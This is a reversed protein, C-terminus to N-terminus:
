HYDAIEVDEAGADTWRFCGRYQDNIRVSWQGARDGRLRELRNGPPIRMDRVDRSQNLMALKRRAVARVDDPCVKRARASRVGNYVDETGQNAFSVIVFCIYRTASCADFGPQGTAAGPPKGLLGGRRGHRHSRRFPTYSRTRPTPCGSVNYIRRLTARQVPWAPSGAPARSWYSANSDSCSCISPASWGSMLPARFFRSWQVSCALESSLWSCCPHLTVSGSMM